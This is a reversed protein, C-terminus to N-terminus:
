AAGVRGLIREALMVRITERFADLTLRVDEDTHAASTVGGNYSTSVSVDIHGAFPGSQGQAASLQAMHATHFKANFAPSPDGNGSSAGNGMPIQGDIWHQGGDFSTFFGTPVRAQLTAGTFTIFYDNSGALLHDPDTPDAVIPTENDPSIPDDCSLDINAAPNGAVSCTRNPLSGGGVGGLGGRLQNALWGSLHGYESRDIPSEDAVGLSPVAVTLFLAVAVGLWWRTRLM